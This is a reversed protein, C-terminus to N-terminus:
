FSQARQNGKACMVAQPHQTTPWACLMCTCLTRASAGNYVTGAATRCCEGSKKTLVWLRSTRQLCSYLRGVKFCEHLSDKINIDNQCTPVHQKQLSSNTLFLPKNDNLSSVLVYVKVLSAPNHPRLYVTKITTDTYKEIDVTYSNLNRM